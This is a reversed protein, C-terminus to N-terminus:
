RTLVVDASWTGINIRIASVTCNATSVQDCIVWLYDDSGVVVDLIKSIGLSTLPGNFLYSGAENCVALNMGTWMVIYKTEDVELIKVTGM